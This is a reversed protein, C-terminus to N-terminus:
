SEGRLDGPILELVLKASAKLGPVLVVFVLWRDEEVTRDRGRRSTEKVSSSSSVVPRGSWDEPSEDSTEGSSEDSRDRPLVGDGRPTEGMGMLWGERAVSDGARPLVFLGKPPKFPASLRRGRNASGDDRDATSKRSADQDDNCLRADDTRPLSIAWGGAFPVARVCVLFGERGSGYILVGEAVDTGVEQPGDAGEVTSIPAPVLSSRCASTCAFFRSAKSSASM